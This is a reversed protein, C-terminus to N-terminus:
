DLEEAQVAAITGRLRTRSAEDLGVFEIGARRSSDLSSGHWVVRGEVELTSQDPLRFQIRIAEGPQLARIAFVGVGNESIDVSFDSFTYSKGHGTYRTEFPVRRAARRAAMGEDM